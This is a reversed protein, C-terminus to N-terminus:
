LLLEAERERLKTTVFLLLTGCIDEDAPIEIGRIDLGNFLFIAAKEKEQEGRKYNLFRLTRRYGRKRKNENHNSISRELLWEVNQLSKIEQLLENGRELEKQTM